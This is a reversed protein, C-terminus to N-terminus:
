GGTPLRMGMLVDFVIFVVGSYLAAAVVAVWWPRAGLVTLLALLFVPLAVFFGVQGAAATLLATLIAALFGPRATRWLRRPDHQPQTRVTGALETRTGQGRWCRLEDILISVLVLLAVAGVSLPFVRAEFRLDRTSVAFALLYGLVLIPVVLRGALRLRSREPDM